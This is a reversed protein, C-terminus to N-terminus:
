REITLTKGTYVVQKQPIGFAASLGTAEGPRVLNFVRQALAGPYADQRPDITLVQRKEDWAFDILTHQGKSTAATIAM